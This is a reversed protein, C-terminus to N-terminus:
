FAHDYIAAIDTALKLNSKVVSSVSIKTEYPADQRVM